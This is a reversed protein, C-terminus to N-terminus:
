SCWCEQITRSSMGRLSHLHRQM